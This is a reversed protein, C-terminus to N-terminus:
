WDGGAGGGGFDGGGFGGFGDFGGSSWGASGGIGYGGYYGNNGYWSSAGDMWYVDRWFLGGTVAWFQAMAIRFPISSKNKIRKSTSHKLANNFTVHCFFWIFVAPMLAFVGGCLSAYFVSMKEAAFCVGVNICSWFVMIDWIFVVRTYKPMRKISTIISKEGFSKKRLLRYIRQRYKKFAIGRKQSNNYFYEIRKREYGLKQGTENEIRSILDLVNLYTFRGKVMYLFVENSPQEHKLWNIYFPINIFFGIFIVLALILALSGSIM